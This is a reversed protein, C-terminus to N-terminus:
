SANSLRSGPQSFTLSSGCAAASYSFIICAGTDSRTAVFAKAAVANAYSPIAVRLRRSTPQM